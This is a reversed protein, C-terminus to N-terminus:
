ARLSGLCLAALGTLTPSRATCTVACARPSRLPFIKLRLTPNCARLSTVTWLHQSTLTWHQQWTQGEAQLAIQGHALATLQEDPGAHMPHIMSHDPVSRTMLLFKSSTPTTQLPPIPTNCDQLGSANLM